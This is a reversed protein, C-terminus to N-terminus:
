GNIVGAQKSKRKFECFDLWMIVPPSAIVMAWIRWDPKLWFYEMSLAMLFWATSLFAAALIRKKIELKM